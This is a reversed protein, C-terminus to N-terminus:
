PNQIGTEEIGPNQIVPIVLRSPHATNRYITMVPDGEAPYRAFTDKDHGAIALRLRHGAPILVSTPWM